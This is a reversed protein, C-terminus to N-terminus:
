KRRPKMVRDAGLVKGPRGDDDHPFELDIIPTEGGGASGTTPSPAPLKILDLMGHPHFVVSWSKAVLGLALEQTISGHQVRVVVGLGTARISKTQAATLKFTWSRPPGNSVTSTLSPAADLSAFEVSTTNTSKVHIELATADKWAERAILVGIDGVKVCDRPNSTVCKLTIQNTSRTYTVTITATM